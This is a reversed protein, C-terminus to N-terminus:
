VKCQRLADNFNFERMQSHGTWNRLRSKVWAVPRFIAADKLENFYQIRLLSHCRFENAM